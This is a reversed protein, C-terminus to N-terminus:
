KEFVEEASYRRSYISTEIRGLVARYRLYEPLGMIKKVSMAALKKTFHRDYVKMVGNDLLNGTEWYGDAAQFVYWNTTGVQYCGRSKKKLKM